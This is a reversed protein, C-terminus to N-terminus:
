CIVPPMTASCQPQRKHDGSGRMEDTEAAGAEHEGALAHEADDIRGGHRNRRPREQPQRAQDFPARGACRVGAQRRRQGPEARAVDFEALKQRRPRVHDARCEGFIEFPQLVLHRRERLALGFRRDGGREALREFRHKRAKPGGTAAAEIACTCRAVTSVAPPGRATATLTSRGPTSCRKWASRAAKVKAARCASFKEASARRSRSM